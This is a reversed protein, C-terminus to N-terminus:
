LYLVSMWIIAANIAIGTLGLVLKDTLKFQWGKLAVYAGISLFGSAVLILTLKM